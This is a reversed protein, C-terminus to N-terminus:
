SLIEYQWGELKNRLEEWERYCSDCLGSNLTPTGCAGCERCDDPLYGSRDYCSSPSMQLQMYRRREEKTLNDWNLKM